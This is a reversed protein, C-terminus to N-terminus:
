FGFFLFTFFGFIFSSTRWADFRRRGFGGGV